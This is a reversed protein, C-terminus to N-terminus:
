RSPADLSAIKWGSAERELRVIRDTGVGLTARVGEIFVPADTAAKLRSVFGAGRPERDFDQALREPTYRSRWDGSLGAWAVGFDRGEVAAVFARIAARVAADEAVEPRVEVCPPCDARVPAQATTCGVAWLLAPLV